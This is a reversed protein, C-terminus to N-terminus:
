GEWNFKQGCEDCYKQKKYMLNGCGCVWREMGNDSVEKPKTTPMTIRDSFTGCVLEFLIPLVDNIANAVIGQETSNGDAHYKNRYCNLVALNMQDIRQPIISM